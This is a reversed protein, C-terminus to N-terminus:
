HSSWKSPITPHLLSGLNGRLHCTKCRAVLRVTTCLLSTDRLYHADGIGLAEDLHVEFVLGVGPPCVTSELDLRLRGEASIEMGDVVWGVVRM